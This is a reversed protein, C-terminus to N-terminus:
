SETPTVRGMVYRWGGAYLGYLWTDFGAKDPDATSFGTRYGAYALDLAQQEPENRRGQLYEIAGQAGDRVVDRTLADNSRTVAFPALVAAAALNGMSEM